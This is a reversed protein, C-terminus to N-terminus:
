KGSIYQFPDNTGLYHKYIESVYDEFSKGNIKKAVSGPAVVQGLSDKTSTLAEWKSKAAAADEIATNLTQIRDLKYKQREVSDTPQVSAQRAIYRENETISGTGKMLSKATQLQNIAGFQEVVGYDKSNNPQGLQSKMNEIAPAINGGFYGGKIKGEDLAKRYDNILGKSQRVFDLNSNIDDARASSTKVDALAQQKMFTTDYPTLPKGGITLGGGGGSGSSSGGGGSVPAAVGSDKMQQLSLLARQRTKEDINPSTLVKQLKVTYDQIPTTKEDVIVQGTNPDIQRQDKGLSVSAQPVKTILEGTRPNILSQGPNVATADPEFRNIVQGTEPDVIMEGPKVVVNKKMQNAKSEMLAKVAAEPNLKALQALMRPDLNGGRAKPGGRLGNPLIGPPTNQPYGQPALGGVGGSTLGAAFQSGPMGGGLAGLDGGEGGGLFMGALGNKAATKQRMEEMQAERLLKQQKVDGIRAQTLQYNMMMQPLAGLGQGLVALAGPNGGVRPQADAQALAGGLMMLMTPNFDM